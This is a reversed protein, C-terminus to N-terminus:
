VHRSAGLDWNMNMQHEIENGVKIRSRSVLDKM